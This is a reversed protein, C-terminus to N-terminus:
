LLYYLGLGFLIIAEALLFWIMVRNSAFWIKMTFFSILFVIIEDLMYFVLFVAIYFLYSFASSGSQALVGAFAVPVVASCPFEVITIIAAFLLVMGLLLFINGSKQLSNQFKSSFKSMIQKGSSLECVPGQKRVKIFERLFYIGGGIGLLGILIEMIRMYPVLFSFIKYWIVILFGYVFTTTFIFLGGFILVKQRSKLALVFGLILVLAGLSCVNFGDLFGLLVALVPLSYKKINIKGIIPISINGELDIITVDGKSINDKKCELICGDISRGIEENFGVFYRANTFTIPVMGYYEPFVDYDKYFKKLLEVNDKNSIVFKNIKIAPYKEQLGDLFREEKACHPCTSSYFFNIEVGNSIVNRVPGVQSEQAFAFDFIFFALGFVFIIFILKKM